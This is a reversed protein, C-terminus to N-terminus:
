LIDVQHVRWAGGEASLTVRLPTRLARPGEDGARQVVQSVLVGYAPGTDECADLAPGGLLRAEARTDNDQVQAVFAPGAAEAYERRFREDGHELVRSIQQEVDQADYTLLDRAFREVVAVANEDGCGASVVTPVAAAGGVALVAAVVLWVARRKM